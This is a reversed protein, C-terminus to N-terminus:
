ASSPMRSVDTVSNLRTSKRDIASWRKVQMDGARGRRHPMDFVKVIVHPDLIHKEGADCLRFCAPQRRIQAPGAVAQRQLFFSRGFEFGWLGLLGSGTM